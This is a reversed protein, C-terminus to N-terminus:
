YVESAGIVFPRDCPSWGYAAQRGTLGTDLLRYQMRGRAYDPTRDIVEYLRAEVGLDGTILDPMVPHSLTVYDGLWVPGTSFFANVRVVPAGGKLGEPTGAFRAFLRTAVDQCVWDAGLVTRLGKSEIVHQRARGYTGISTAELYVLERRFESGDYDLRFVIENTVEMRDVEPLGVINSEDFSFVGVPGAAPPRFSRLSIQGTHNIVPYLGAVKYVEAELFQKAEFPEILTFLFPRVTKYLGEGAADLAALAALDLEAAPRGLAFLYVAQMIEAPTGAVVWPHEESLRAGSEPDVTVTRKASLQRDRSRFVWSTYTKSPTVKYLTHTHLTVFEAFAIGPYGVRLTATRGELVTTGVLTRMEGGQDIVECELEGISSSGGLVNISQSAGRPVMLWARYEPLTGTVGLAALDGTTYVRALGSIELVYIPRKALAANKADWAANTAIM